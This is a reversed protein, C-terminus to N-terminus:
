LPNAFTSNSKLKPTKCLYSVWGLGGKVPLSGRISGKLMSFNDVHFYEDCAGRALKAAFKCCKMMFINDAERSLVAVDCLSIANFFSNGIM